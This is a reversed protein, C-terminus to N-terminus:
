TRNPKKMELTTGIRVFGFKEYYVVMVSNVADLTPEFGRAEIDKIALKLLREAVGNRRWKPTTCVNAILSDRIIQLCGFVEDTEGDIAVFWGNQRIYLDMLDEDLVDILENKFCLKILDFLQEEIGVPKEAEFRKVVLNRLSSM